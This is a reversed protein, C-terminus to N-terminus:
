RAPKVRLSAELQDILVRTGKERGGADDYGDLFVSQETFVMRTGAGSPSFQVTVLSISIRAQDIHLDYTYVIRQGPVIDLYRAAFSSVKGDAWVGVLGERGGARFNFERSREKWQGRPRRVLTIQSFTGVLEQIGPGPSRQPRSRDHIYHTQCATPEHNEGSERNFDECLKDASASRTKM